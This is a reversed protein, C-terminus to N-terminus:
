KEFNEKFRQIITACEARNAYGQPDLIKNPQEKGSIIGNGIAWCMAEKAYDSVNGADAFENFDAKKSIDYGKYDAYRYLVVAMQERVINDAIGWYESNEYGEMIKHQFGWYVANTYWDDAVDAWHSKPVFTAEPEGEMRHLIVMFQARALPQSPGFVKDSLGTMIGSQWMGNVYPYFWDETSVDGYGFDVEYAYNDGFIEAVAAIDEDSIIKNEYADKVPIFTHDKHVYFREAQSGSGFVFMHRGIRMKKIETTDSYDKVAMMVVEGGGYVGYYRVILIDSIELEQVQINDPYSEKLMQLYDQRLIDASELSLTPKMSDGLPLVDSDEYYSIGTVVAVKEYALIEEKTAEVILTTTYQSNYLIKREKNFHEEMFKNNVACNERKVIKRREQIYQEIEESKKISNISYDSSDMGKEELMIQDIIKDSVPKLLLWVPIITDESANEIVEQLKADLKGDEATKARLSIGNSFIVVMMLLAMIRGAWKIVKGLKM